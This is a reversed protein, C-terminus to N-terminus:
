VLYLSQLVLIGDEGVFYDIDVFLDLIDCLYELLELFVIFFCSLITSLLIYENEIIMMSQLIWNDNLILGTM